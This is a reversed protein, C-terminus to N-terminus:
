FDRNVGKEGLVAMIKGRRFLARLDHSIIEVIGTHSNCVCVCVSVNSNSEDFGSRERVM